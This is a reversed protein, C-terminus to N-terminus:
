FLLVKRSWSKKSKEDIIRVICAGNLFGKTPIIVNANGQTFTEYLVKGALSYVYIWGSAFNGIDLQLEIEGNRQFLQFPFDLFLEPIDFLNFFCDETLYPHVLNSKWLESETEHCNFCINWRYGLIYGTIPSFSVNPGIGEIFTLRINYFYYGSSSVDDVPNFYFKDGLEMDMRSVLKEKDGEENIFLSGTETEERLGSIYFQGERLAPDCNYLKRYVIGNHM